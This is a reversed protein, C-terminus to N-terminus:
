FKLILFAARILLLGNTKAHIPAHTALTSTFLTSPVGFPPLLANKDDVDTPMENTKTKWKNKHNKEFPFPGFSCKKKKRTVVCDCENVYMCARM